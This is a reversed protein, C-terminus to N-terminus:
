KKIKKTIASHYRGKKIGHAVEISISYKKAIGRITDEEKFISVIEQESLRRIGKNEHKKGTLHSWTIGLKISSIASESVNYIRSLEAASIPSNFIKIVTPNDFKHFHHKEGKRDMLGLGYARKKNESSTVRELSSLRADSKDGYVHDVERLGMTNEDFTDMVLRHITYHQLTGSGSLTVSPYGARIVPKLMTWDGRLSLVRGQDSVSYKGEWGKIDKWAEM